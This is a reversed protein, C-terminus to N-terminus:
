YRAGKNYTNDYNHFTKLLTAEKLCSRTINILLYNGLVVLDFNANKVETTRVIM